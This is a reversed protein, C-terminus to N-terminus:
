NKSRNPTVKYRNNTTNPNICMSKKNNPCKSQFIKSNKKWNM